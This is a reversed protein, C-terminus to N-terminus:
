PQFIDGMRGEVSLKVSKVTPFQMLTETIQKKRLGMSCSGGGSEATANFDVRAEGNVISISNLKSGTPIASGFGSTKEQASPGKILEELTAKAVAQTKPIVRTVSFVKDCSEGSEDRTFYAKVTTADENKAPAEWTKFKVPIRIEDDYEPLGSPNDKKLVLEGTETTPTDFQITTEFPVFDQTMWDSKAQIPAQVLVKGNGDVIIVPFSAEFYWTGRAEGKITIPSETTDNPQPNTLRILNSKDNDSLIETYTRGDPTRCQRPYSEMVPYGASACGAFSNITALPAESNDLYIFLIGLTVVIVIGIGLIIKTYM